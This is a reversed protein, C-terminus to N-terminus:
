GADEMIDRPRVFRSLTGAGEAVAAWSAANLKIVALAATPYKDELRDRIKKDGKRAVRKALGEISPNHGILLLSKAEGAHRRLCNLLNEGDGFDYIDQEFVIKPSAGLEKRVLKWTERTRAAPSCLVLDPMLNNAAMYDGMSKAARKGRGSLPRDIDEVGTESPSSKAHRLLMLNLM